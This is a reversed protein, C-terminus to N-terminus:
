DTTIIDAVHAAVIEGAVRHGAVNWHGSGLRTNAFGHLFENHRQAYQQMVPALAIVSFEERQGLAEIRQEAYLLSKLAHDQLFQARTQADPHVQIGTSVVIVGFRAQLQDRCFANMRVLLAETVDWAARWDGDHPPRMWEVGLGPEGESDDISRPRHLWLNALQLVRFRNILGVKFAVWDSEAKQYAEHSLFSQDLVLRGEELVYFPRVRYPELAPSNNQVDNGPMFALLVLDVDYPAVYQELALMEQATGYGSCGFALVEIRRGTFRPDASLLQELVAWFTQARDVQLAEVYSDGLVAIRLVGDPKAAARDRDRWGARNTEVWGDGEQTFRGRFNPALRTGCIPDPAYPAPYSVGAIRLGIEALM